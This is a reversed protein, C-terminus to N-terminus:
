KLEEKRKKKEIIKAILIGLEYLLMIPITVVVQTFIDPPTIVAALILVGIFSHKRYKKLFTSTVLGIKSLILIL